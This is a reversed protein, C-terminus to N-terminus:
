SYLEKKIRKLVYKTIHKVPFYNYFRNFAKRLKCSKIDRTACYIANSSSCIGNSQLKNFGCFINKCKM